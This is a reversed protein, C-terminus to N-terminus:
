LLEEAINQISRLFNDTKLNKQGLSECYILLSQIGVKQGTYYYFANNKTDNM